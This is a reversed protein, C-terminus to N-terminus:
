GDQFNALTPLCFGPLRCKAFGPGALRANRHPGPFAARRQGGGHGGGRQPRPYIKMSMGASLFEQPPLATIIGNFDVWVPEFPPIPNPNAPGSQDTVILAYTRWSDAIKIGRRWEETVYAYTYFGVKTPANWVLTKNTRDIKFTGERTVENPFVYSDNPQAPGCTGPQDLLRVIRHSLSDGDPDTTPLLLTFTQRLGSVFKPNPSTATANPATTNLTTQMVLPLGASQSSGGVLQDLKATITYNGAAAYTHTLRYLNRNVNPSGELKESSLRKAVVQTGDGLCLIIDTQNNVASNGNQLDMYLVGTIEYTQGGINRALIEGGLLHSARATLAMGFIALSLLLKKM